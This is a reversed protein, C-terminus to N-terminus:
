ASIASYHNAFHMAHAQEYQSKSLVGYAFHPKLAEKSARFQTVAKQLRALASNLDTASQLSPAGPIPEALNHSMRGRWEFVKFALSGVSRQFLVSKMEPFGNLSFEISQACHVLTQPLSWVTDPKLDAIRVLRDTERMAEDLTGFALQRPTDAGDACAALNLSAAYVGTTTAIAMFNRRSRSTSQTTLDPM